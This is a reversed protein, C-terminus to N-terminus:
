LTRGGAWKVYIGLGVGGKTTRTKNPGLHLKPISGLIHATM